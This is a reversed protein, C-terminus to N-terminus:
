LKAKTLINREYKSLAREAEQKKSRPPHLKKYLHMRIENSNGTSKEVLNNSVIEM